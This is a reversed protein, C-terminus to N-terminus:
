SKPVAGESAGDAAPPTGCRSGWQERARAREEPTMREWRERMRQRWYGSHPGGARLGGVLIRSLILLGAAQWYGLVPGHFLEPVLENWLSMAVFSLAGVVVTVIAVIKLGRAVWRRSM